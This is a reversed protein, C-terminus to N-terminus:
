KPKYILSVAVGALILQVFGAIIWIWTLSYPIPYVAFNNFMGVFVFFFGIYVGFRIGELIGKGEYGKAFIFAFFFSFVLTTLVMVWMFSSMEAEPRIVGNSELLKYTESLMGGHIILDTLEIVVFVALAALLIRKWNM